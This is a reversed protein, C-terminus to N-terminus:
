RKRIKIYYFVIYLFAAGVLIFRVVYDLTAVKLTPVGASMYNAVANPSPVIFNESVKDSQQMYWSEEPRITYYFSFENNVNVRLKVEETTALDFFVITGNKSVNVGPPTNALAFEFPVLADKNDGEIVQYEYLYEGCAPILPTLNGMVQYNHQLGKTELESTELLRARDITFTSAVGQPQTVSVGFKNVDALEKKSAVSSVPVYVTGKFGKKLPFVGNTVTVLEYTRSTDEKIYISAGEKCKLTDWKKTMLQVNMLVDTASDMHFSIVSKNKLNIQQRAYLSWTYFGEDEHKTNFLVKLSNNSQYDVAVSGGDYTYQPEMLSLDANNKGAAFCNTEAMNITMFIAAALVVGKVLQKM